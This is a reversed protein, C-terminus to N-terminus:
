VCCKWMRVITVTSIPVRISRKPLFRIDSTHQEQYEMMNPKKSLELVVDMFSSVVSLLFLLEDIGDLLIYM